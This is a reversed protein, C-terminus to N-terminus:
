FIILALITIVIVSIFIGIKAKKMKKHRQKAIDDVYQINAKEIIVADAEIDVFEGNNEFDKISLKVTTDKTLNVDFRCDIVNFKKNHRIDFVGFISILYYLLNWWFWRKGSYHHAKCIVVEAINCDSEYVCKRIKDEKVIKVSKNDITMSEVADNYGIIEIELKTM